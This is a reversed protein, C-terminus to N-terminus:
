CLHHHLHHLDAGRRFQEGGVGLPASAGFGARRDVVLHHHGAPGIPGSQSAASALRRRRSESTSSQSESSSSETDTPEAWAVGPTRALAAGIGLAAALLGVRGIHGAYELASHQAPEDPHAGGDEEPLGEPVWADDRHRAHAPAEVPPASYLLAGPAAQVLRWTLAKEASVQPAATM